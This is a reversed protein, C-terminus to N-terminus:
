DPGGPVVPFLNTFNIKTNHTRWIEWLQTSIRVRREGGELYEHMGYVYLASKM